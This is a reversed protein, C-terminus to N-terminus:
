PEVDVAGWIAMTRQDQVFAIVRRANEKASFKTKLLISGAGNGDLSRTVFERVVNTHPLTRGANEGRHVQTVLGSEVLAVNLEADRPVNSVQYEIRWGDRDPAASIMISAPAPRSLVSKVAKRARAGDSGVFQESGNVIMQPTYLRDLGLASAYQQQRKSNAPSSFPDTWGLHNWYDVHFALPFIHRGNKKADEALDALVRDAPPCSSCGESTFLEVVAFSSTAPEEALVIDPLNSCALGLSLLWFVRKKM